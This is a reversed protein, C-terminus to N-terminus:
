LFKEILTKAEQLSPDKAYAERAAHFAQEGKNWTAYLKALNLLTRPHKGFQRIAKLYVKEAKDYEHVLMYIRAALRYAKSEKPFTTMVQELMEVAEFYLKANYLLEAAQLLVGPEEGFEEVLRRLTSKGKPGDGAQLYDRGKQLLDDRRRERRNRTSLREAAKEESLAKHLITLIDLLNKEQGPTYPVQATTSKALTEFLSRVAPQRNLERVCEQVLVEIEFRTKGTVNRPEFEKLGALLSELARITDDRKLQSKARAINRGASPMTFLESM